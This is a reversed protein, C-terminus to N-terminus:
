KNDNVINLYEAPNVYKGDKKLELHLHVGIDSESLMTGATGIVAGNDV